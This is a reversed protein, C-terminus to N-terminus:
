NEPKDWQHQYINVYKEEGKLNLFNKIKEEAMLPHTGLAIMFDLKKVKQLLIDIITKFFFWTPGSRTNDPIIVIVKKDKFERKELEEKCKKYIEEENLFKIEM